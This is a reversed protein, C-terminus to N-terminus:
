LGHAGKGALGATEPREAKLRRVAHTLYRISNRLEMSRRCLRGALGPPYLMIRSLARQQHTWLSKYGENGHLLDYERVGESISEQISLGLSVLGVSHNAFDPHHGAQYYYFVDGYRFGYIASVPRNDLYMVRLRLWGSALAIRSFEDHFEILQKGNLADSGGKDDWRRNHLELFQSFLRVREQENEAMEVQVSFAEYLNRIRKRLNRRHSSGLRAVYGDWSSNSIDIYPCVDTATNQLYWSRGALAAAIDGAAASGTKLQDLELVLTGKGLYEVLAQKVLAECDPRMIVDLYDSGVTGTGLFELRQFPILRDPQWPRVALPAIGVIDKGLWVILIHLRRGESLHKWWTFLWEWTLFLCDAHSETLLKNWHPRLQEFVAIDDVKEVSCFAPDHLPMSRRDSRGREVGGSPWGPMSAPYPDVSLTTVASDEGLLVRPLNIM